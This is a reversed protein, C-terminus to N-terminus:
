IVSQSKSDLIHMATKTKIVLGRGKREEKVWEGLTSVTAM